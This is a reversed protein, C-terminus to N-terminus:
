QGNKKNGLSIREWMYPMFNLSKPIIIQYITFVWTNKVAWFIKHPMSTPTLGNKSLNNFGNWTIFKDMNTKSEDVPLSSIATSM